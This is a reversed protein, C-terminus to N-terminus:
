QAHILIRLDNLRSIETAQFSITNFFGQEHIVTDYLIDIQISILTLLEIDRSKREPSNFSENVDELTVNPM